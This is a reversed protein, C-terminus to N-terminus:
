SAGRAPCPRHPSSPRPRPRSLNSLDSTPLRGPPFTSDGPFLKSISREINRYKVQLQSLHSASHLHTLPYRCNQVWRTQNVIVHCPWLIWGVWRTILDARLPGRYQVGGQQGPYFILVPFPTALSKNGFEKACDSTPFWCNVAAVLIDTHKFFASVQPYFLISVM